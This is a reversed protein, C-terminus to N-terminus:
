DGLIFVFPIDVGERWGRWVSLGSSRLGARFWFMWLGRSWIGMLCFGLCRSTALVRGRQDIWRSVEDFYAHPNPNPNSHSWATDPNITVTRFLMSKSGDQAESHVQWNGTWTRRTILQKLDDQELTTSSSTSRRHLKLEPYGADVRSIDYLVDEQPFDEPSLPYASMQVRYDAKRISISDTISSLRHSIQYPPYRRKMMQQIDEPLYIFQGWIYAEDLPQDFILAVKAPPPASSRPNPENLRVQESQHTATEPSRTLSPQQRLEAQTKAGSTVLFEAIADHGVSRAMDLPTKNQDSNPNVEAGARVLLKVCDIHGNHSAWHLPTWDYITKISPNAGSVLLYDVMKTNGGAAAAYLESVGGTGVTNPDAGFALLLDLIDRNRHNVLNARWATKGDDDKIDIEAGNAVLARIMSESECRTARHLATQGNTDKANIDIGAHLFTEVAPICDLEVSLFMANNMIHEDENSSNEQVRAIAHELNPINNSHVAVLLAVHDDSTAADGAREVIMERVGTWKREAAFLLMSRGHETRLDVSAGSQILLEVAKEFGKEMAVALPTKGTEDEADIDSTENLLMAAVKTLGMSAALHLATVELMQQTTTKGPSPLSIEALSTTTVDIASDVVTMDGQSIQSRDELDSDIDSDVIEADDAAAASNLGSKILDLGDLLTLLPKRKEAQSLLLYLERLVKPQLSEEPSERAHEAMYQAAYCALPYNRAISWLTAGRLTPLTLYMACGMTIVEHFGPFYKERRQDFYKKTTFHVLNVKKTNSDIVLLGTCIDIIHQIEIIDDEEDFDIGREIALAHQLEKVALPRFAYTVWGFAKQATTKHNEPQSEIREWARDYTQDLSEPLSRLTERVNNITLATKLSDVHLRALLFMKDVTKVMAEKIERRLQPRRTVFKSLRRKDKKIEQDIYLEIDAKNAKIEVSKFDKLEEDLDEPIRSTVLLHCDFDQLFEVLQWRFDPRCEDLADIIIFTQQYLTIATKIEKLLGDVGLPGGSAEFANQLSEPIDVADPVVLQQLLSGLVNAFTQEPQNYKLYTFAVGIGNTRKAQERVDEVVISAIVTKGAGPIGFCWLLKEKGSLWDLYDPLALFWRGSGESVQSLVTRHEQEAQLTSLWSSLSSKSQKLEAKQGRQDIRELLDSQSALLLSNAHQEIRSIRELITYVDKKTFFWKAATRLERLRGEQKLAATSPDFGISAALDDCAVKFQQALAEQQTQTTSKPGLSGSRARDRVTGLLILLSSAEKELLVREGSANKADQLYAIVGTLVRFAIDAASLINIPDM